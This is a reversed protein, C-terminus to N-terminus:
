TLTSSRILYRQAAHGGQVVDRGRLLHQFGRRAAQRNRPPRLDAGLDHQRAGERAVARALREPQEQVAIEVLVDRLMQREHLVHQRLVLADRAALGRRQELKPRAVTQAGRQERRRFTDFARPKGIDPVERRVVHREVPPEGCHHVSKRAGIEGVAGRM